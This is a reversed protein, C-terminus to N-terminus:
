SECERMYRISERAITDPDPSYDFVEVSVWGAYSVEALARFIPKFDVAGFGPGRKNPDNAHFHHLVAANARILDPVPTPESSMAKVDLHLKVFPHALRRCLAAGEAATTMYNTEATTLPELCLTVRGDELAKLCHSLTDAARDDGAAKSVGPDLNRQFPSGLVMLDGGLEATARALEALYEGTARRVAADASTLHFGTTKALLWHLGIIRVGAAEAQRRLEARRNASVDTILPALTFPAVELGAYGLEAARTCVRAHDWNEFTENCIAYKM